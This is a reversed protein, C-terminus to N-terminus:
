KAVQRLTCTASGGCKRIALDALPEAVDLPM